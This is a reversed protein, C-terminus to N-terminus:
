RTPEKRHQPKRLFLADVAICGTEGAIIPNVDVADLGDALNTCLHSFREITLALADVDAKPRGRYGRLVRYGKLRTLLDGAAVATVPPEVTIADQLVETFIGGLAITVMPGFTPDTTM